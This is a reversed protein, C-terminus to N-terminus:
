IQKIKLWKTKDHNKYFLVFIKGFSVLNVEIGLAVGQAIKQRGM